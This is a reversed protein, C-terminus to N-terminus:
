KYYEKVQFALYLSIVTSIIGGVIDYNILSYVAYLLISYFFLNWGKISKAFLGSISLGRLIVNAILFAVVITYRTGFHFGYGRMGYAGIYTGVGFISLITPISVAVSIIAVWPAFQVLLEKINAPLAPAKKVYGDITKILKDM